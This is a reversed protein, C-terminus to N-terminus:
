NRFLDLIRNREESPPVGQSSKGNADVGTGLTTIGGGKAYEEYTWNGAVSLLGEPV